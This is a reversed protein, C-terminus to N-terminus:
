GACLGTQAAERRRDRLRQQRQTSTLPPPKPADKKRVGLRWKPVPPCGHRSPAWCEIYVMRREHMASMYESITRVALGSWEAIQATSYAGYAIMEIVVANSIASIRRKPIGKNARRPVKIIVFDEHTELTEAQRRAQYPGENTPTREPQSLM